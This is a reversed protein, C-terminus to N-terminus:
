VDSGYEFCSTRSSNWMGTRMREGRFILRPDVVGMHTEITSAFDEVLTRTQVRLSTENDSRTKASRTRFCVVVKLIVTEPGSNFTIRLHTRPFTGPIRRNDFVPNIDESKTVKNVKIAYAATSKGTCHELARRLDRVTAKSGLVLCIDQEDCFKPVYPGDSVICLGLPQSAQRTYGQKLKPMFTKQQADGPVRAM